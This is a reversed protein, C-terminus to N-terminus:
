RISNIYRAMRQLTDEGAKVDVESNGDHTAEENDDTKAAEAEGAKAIIDGMSKQADVLVGIREAMDDIMDAIGDLRDALERIASLAEAVGAPSEEGAPAKEAKEEVDADSKEVHEEDDETLAEVIAAHTEDHEGDKVELVSTLQNAPIPVLSVEYLKLERLENAKTGDALVVPASDLVDYAFSLKTLRGEKVLKRTYQAVESSEDFQAKILLGREDESAEVVAGLNMRPDDTRHGFLLPIPHGSEQWDTLTKAFAGPAIVDGYSDKIRDFTAAYATIEGGDAEAIDKLEFSKKLMKASRM